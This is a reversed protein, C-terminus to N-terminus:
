GRNVCHDNTFLGKAATLTRKINDVIPRAVRKAIDAQIKNLTTDMLKRGATDIVTLKERTVDCQRAKEVEGIRGKIDEFLGSVRIDLDRVPQYLLIADRLEIPGIGDAVKQGEVISALVGDAADIVPQIVGSFAKVAEDLKGVAVTVDTIIKQAPHDAGAFMACAGSIAALITIPASFKM